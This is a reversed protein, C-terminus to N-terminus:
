TQQADLKNTFALIPVQLKLFSWREIGDGRANAMCSIYTVHLYLRVDNLIELKEKDYGAERFIDM